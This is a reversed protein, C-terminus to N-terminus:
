RSGTRRQARGGRHDHGSCDHADPGSLGRSPHRRRRRQSPHPGAGHTAMSVARKRAPFSRSWNLVIGSGGIVKPLWACRCNPHLPILGRAEALTYTKGENAECEPCVRGDGATTWESEVAVGEVGAEEYSNLTADAHSAIVETRAILRARTIGIREVRDRLDRAIDLPNRGEAMGRALVEGMKQAMVETVKRMDNFTRTYIIGVRDAHVPRNFAQSIWSQEVKAGGRRLNAGAQRIGRQYATDIYVNSWHRAGASAMDTGERVTLVRAQVQRRLWRMFAAEKEASREFIYRPADMADAHTVVQMERGELLEPLDRELDRVIAMFRRRVEADFARRVMATHTPDVRRRTHITIAEGARHCRFQPPAALTLPRRGPRM